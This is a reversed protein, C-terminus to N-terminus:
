DSAIVFAISLKILRVRWTLPVDFQPPAALHDQPQGSRGDEFSHLAKASQSPGSGVHRFEDSVKASPILL